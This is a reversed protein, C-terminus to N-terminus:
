CYPPGDCLQTVDFLSSLSGFFAKEHYIHAKAQPMEWTSIVFFVPRIAGPDCGADVGGGMHEGPCQASELASLIFDANDAAAAICRDEFEALAELRSERGVSQVSVGSFAWSEDAEAQDIDSHFHLSLSDECPVVVSEDTYHAQGGAPCPFDAPGTSWQTSNSSM